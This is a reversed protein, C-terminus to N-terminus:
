IDGEVPPKSAHTPRKVYDGVRQDPNEEYQRVEALRENYCDNCEWTRYGRTDGNEREFAFLPKQQKCTQCQQTMGAYYGPNDLAAELEIPKAYSPISEAPFWGDETTPVESGVLRNKLLWNDGGEAALTFNRVQVRGDKWRYAFGFSDSVKYIRIAGDEVLNEVLQEYNM